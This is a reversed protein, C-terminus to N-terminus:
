TKIKETKIDVRNLVAMGDFIIVKRINSETSKNVNENVSEPSQNCEEQQM